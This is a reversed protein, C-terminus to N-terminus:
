VYEVKQDNPKKGGINTEVEFKCFLCFLGMM